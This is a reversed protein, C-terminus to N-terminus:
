IHLANRIQAMLAEAQVLGEQPIEAANVQDIYQDITEVIWTKCKVAGKLGAYQRLANDGGAKVCLQWALWGLSTYKTSKVDGLDNNFGYFGNNGVAQAAVRYANFDGSLKYAAQEWPFTPFEIMARRVLFYVTLGSNTAQQVTLMLRMCIGPMLATLHNFLAQANNGTVYKGFHSYFLRCTSPRIVTSNINLDTNIGDEIKGQAQETVNGRKSLATVTNAFLNANNLWDRTPRKVAAWALLIAMAEQITIDDNDENFEEYTNWAGIRPSFWVDPEGVVRDLIAGDEIAWTVTAIIEAQAAQENLRANDPIHPGLLEAMAYSQVLDAKRSSVHPLKDRSAYRFYTLIQVMMSALPHCIDGAFPGVNANFVCMQTMLPDEHGFTEVFARCSAPGYLTRATRRAELAANGADDGPVNQPIPVALDNILAVLPVKHVRPVGGQGNADAPIAAVPDVLGEVGWLRESEALDINM